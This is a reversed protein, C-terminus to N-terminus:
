VDFVSLGRTNPDIEDVEFLNLPTGAPMDQLISQQIGQLTTIDPGQPVGSAPFAVVDQAFTEGTVRELSVCIDRMGNCYLDQSNSCLNQCSPAPAYRRLRAYENSYGERNTIPPNPQNRYSNFRMQGEPPHEDFGLPYDGPANSIRERFLEWVYDVFAHHCWFIPDFAALTGSAMTGDVWRHVSDHYGEWYYRRQDRRVIQSHSTRTLVDAIANKPILAATAGINRRIKVGPLNAFLGETVEGFPTGFYKNSFLITRAQRNEMAEDLSSDWYPVTVDPGFVSQLAAEYLLLYIRHWSFFAPGRHERTSGTHIVAIIDYTSMDPRIGFHNKLRRVALAYRLFNTEYPGARLERRVLVNVAKRRHRSKAATDSESNIKRLLANLFNSSSTDNLTEAVPQLFKKFCIINIGREFCDTKHDTSNIQFSSIEAEINPLIAVLLVTLLLCVLTRDIHMRSGFRNFVRFLHSKFTKQQYICM